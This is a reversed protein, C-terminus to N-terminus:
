RLNHLNEEAQMWLTQVHTHQYAQTYLAAYAGCGDGGSRREFKRIFDWGPGERVLNLIIQWTSNNDSGWHPGELLTCTICYHNWDEYDPGVMKNRAEHTVEATQRIVYSLPVRAAGFKSRPYNQLHEDFERFKM